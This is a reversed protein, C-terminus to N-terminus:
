AACCECTGKSERRRPEGGIDDGVNETRRCLLPLDLGSTTAEIGVSILSIKRM